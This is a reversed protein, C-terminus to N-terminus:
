SVSSRAEHRTGIDGRYFAGPFKIRECAAYAVARAAHLDEGLATVCLVRGGTTIVEGGRETTGAHFVVAGDEEAEELGRVVMGKEYPGPYGGSAVVVGVAARPDWNPPEIEGLKGEAAALLVEALDGDLRPLIVQTEPDGFRCNFELVRPGQETLMLGAYLVGRYDIDELRLAHMTPLIVRQEIQRLVRRGLASVPSFVGMGGTNPGTDGEGVQKHDMAPELVLVSTGDTIALVSVEEGVLCEEIIVESGADGLRKEEMLADVASCATKADECVFVGKGAALGDAKVVLPWTSSAELYAKAAGARDFRRWSATPIRHRQLIEKAFLKSGELRAGDKGPGFAPIGAARVRDALGACLPDEPGIVVLGVQESQALAVLGDLDSASVDVNRAVSATGANGPACIVEDVRTSRALKWCLAHERGGGGVVLVKV